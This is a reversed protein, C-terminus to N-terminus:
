PVCVSHSSHVCSQQPRLGFPCPLSLSLCLFLPTHVVTVVAWDAERRAHAHTHTCIGLLDCGLRAKKKGGEDSAVLIQVTVVAHNPSGPLTFGDTLSQAVVCRQKTGNVGAEHALCLSRSICSQTHSHPHTHSDLRPETEFHLLTLTHTHTFFLLRRTSTREREREEVKVLNTIIQEEPMMKSEGESCKNEGSNSKKHITPTEGEQTNNQKQKPLPVVSTTSTSEGSNKKHHTTEGELQTHKQKPFVPASTNAVTSILTAKELYAPTNSMVEGGGGEAPTYHEFHVHINKCKKQIVAVQKMVSAETGVRFLGCVAVQYKQDKSEGKPVPILRIAWPYYIWENHTEEEDTSEKSSPLHTFSQFYQTAIDPQGRHDGSSQAIVHTEILEALQSLHPLVDTLQTQTLTATLTISFTQAPPHVIANAWRCLLAFLDCHRIRSTVCTSSRESM